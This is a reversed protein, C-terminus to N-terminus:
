RLTAPDRVAGSVGTTAPLDVFALPLDPMHVHEDEIRPRPESLGPRLALCVQDRPTAAVPACRQPMTRGM